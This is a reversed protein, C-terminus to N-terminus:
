SPATTRAPWGSARLTLLASSVGLTHLELLERAHNENPMAKRSRANDLYMLMAPHLTVAKLLDAFSNALQGQIADHWYSAVVAGVHLKRADVNFHNFWFWAQWALAAQDERLLTLLFSQELQNIAALRMSQLRKQLSASGNRQLEAFISWYDSLSSTTSDSLM